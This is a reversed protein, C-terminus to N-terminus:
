DIKRETTCKRANRFYNTAIFAATLVAFTKPSWLSYRVGIESRLKEINLSAFCTAFFSTIPFSLVLFVRKPM